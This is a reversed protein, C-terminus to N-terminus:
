SVASSRVPRRPERDFFGLHQAASLMNRPVARARRRQTLNVSRKNRSRPIALSKAKPRTAIRSGIRLPKSLSRCGPKGETNAAKIKSERLTMKM